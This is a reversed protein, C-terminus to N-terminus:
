LVNFWMCTSWFYVFDHYNLLFMKCSRLILRFKQILQSLDKHSRWWIKLFLHKKKRWFLGIVNLAISFLEYSWHPHTLFTILVIKASLNLYSLTVTPSNQIENTWIRVWLHSAHVVKFLPQTNLPSILGRDWYQCYSRIGQRSVLQQTLGGQQGLPTNGESGRWV